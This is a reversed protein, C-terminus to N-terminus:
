SEGERRGGEKYFLIASSSIHYKETVYFKDYEDSNKLNIIM